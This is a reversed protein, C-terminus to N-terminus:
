PVSGSKAAPATAPPAAPATVPPPAVPWRLDHASWKPDQLETHFRIKETLSWDATTFAITKKVYVDADVCECLCYISHLTSKFSQNEDTIRFKFWDDLIQEKRQPTLSVNERTARWVVPFEALMAAIESLADEIDALKCTHLKAPVVTASDFRAHETEHELTSLADDRWLDRPQGGIEPDMTHNFQASETELDAPIFTCLGGGPIPPMFSSCDGTLGGFGSEMDKDVIIKKIFKLRKPNYDHLVKETEVARDGHGDATCSPDPKPKKTCAAQRTDRKGKNEPKSTEEELLEQPTRESKAACQEKTLCARAVVPLSTGATVPTAAAEGRAIADAGRAAEAESHSSPDDLGLPTSSLNSRPRQQVVHSLEHAILHRGASTQPAYRDAGFAIHDGVTYAMANVARASQTAQADDHIRVHGFDHSFRPEFFDRTARDLPRGASRLVDHVISPADTSRSPGAPKRQLTEGENCSECKGSGGCDCKRQLPAGISVNSLSWHMRPAGGAMIAEAFRNAEHEFASDSQGIKLGSSAVAPFRSAKSAGAPENKRTLMALSM